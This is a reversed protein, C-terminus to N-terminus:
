GERNMIEEFTWERAPDVLRFEVLQQDTRSAYLM